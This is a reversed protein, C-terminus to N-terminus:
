SEAITANVNRRNFTETAATFVAVKRLGAALARELGRQNPVLASYTVGAPPPGLAAFVEAADALQPIRDPRVFSSVEVDKLGAAVLARVFAVKGDTPVPTAENQLGDRPGVETLHVSPTLGM